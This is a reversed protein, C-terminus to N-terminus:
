SLQHNIEVLRSKELESIGNMLNYAKYGRTRLEIASFQSRIGSKCICVLIDDKNLVSENLGESQPMFILNEHSIKPIEFSERVDLLKVNNDTIMNSLRVHDIDIDDSEVQKDFSIGESKVERIKEENKEIDIISTSYNLASTILVKGSLINEYGLICKLAEQAQISGMMGTLTGLVGTDECNQIQDSNIPRDYLCRYSPGNNYNFVGIQGEYKFISASVFPKNLIVCADNILFRTDINDSCDLVIDFEQLLDLANKKGLRENVPYAECKSNLKRLHNVLVFAKKEGINEETYIVQRHLNTADIRDNDVIDIRGVGAGALYLAAPIGLGGAGVICVSTKQIKAQGEPGIEPLIEQRVYRSKIM